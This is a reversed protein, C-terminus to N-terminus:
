NDGVILSNSLYYEAETRVIYADDWEFDDMGLIARFAKTVKASQESNLYSNLAMKGLARVSHRRALAKPHALGAFLADFMVTKNDDGLTGAPLRNCMRGLCYFAASKVQVEDTKSHEIAEPLLTIVAPDSFHGVASLLNILIYSNDKHTVFATRTKDVAEAGIHGLSRALHEASEADADEFQGIIWDIVDPGFSAILKEADKILKTLATNGREDRYFMAGLAAALKVKEEAALDTLSAIKGMASECQATDQSAFAKVIEDTRDSM